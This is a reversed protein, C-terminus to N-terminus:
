KIENGASFRELYKESVNVVDSWKWGRDDFAGLSTIYQKQKNKILYVRNTSNSRVLINDKLNGENILPSYGSAVEEGDLYSDKDTDPSFLLTRNAIEDSKKLQDKDADVDKSDVIEKQTFVAVRYEDKEENMKKPAWDHMAKMITDFSYEYNRGNKTGPDQSIFVQRNDDYGSLIIVHYDPGGNLFNPNNLRQDNTPLIVPRGADLEKKIEGITPRMAVHAEWNFFNNIINVIEEANEDYSTGFSKEKIELTLKIANRASDPTLQKNNYFADVMVISSEECADQWPQSWNGFPAQSTFSIVLKGAVVPFVILTMLGLVIFLLHNKLRHKTM